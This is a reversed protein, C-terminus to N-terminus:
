KCCVMFFHGKEVAWHLPTNGNETQLPVMEKGGCNFMLWKAIEIRNRTAAWHLVSAGM